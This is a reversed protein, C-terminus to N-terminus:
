LQARWCYHASITLANLEWTAASLDASQQCTQHCWTPLMLKILASTSCGVGGVWTFGRGCQSSYNGFVATGPLLCDNITATELRKQCSYIGPFPSLNAGNRAVINPRKQRSYDTQVVSLVTMDVPTSYQTVARQPLRTTQCLMTRPDYECHSWVCGGLSSLACLCKSAMARTPPLSSFAHRAVTWRCTAPLSTTAWDSDCIVHGHGWPVESRIDTCSPFLYQLDCYIGFKFDFSSSYIIWLKFIRAENLM